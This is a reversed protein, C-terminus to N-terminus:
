RPPCSTSVAWNMLVLALLVLSVIKFIGRSSAHSNTRPLTGAWTRLYSRVAWGRYPSSGSAPPVGGGSGLASSPLTPAPIFTGTRTLRMLTTSEPPGTSSASNESVSSARSFRIASYVWSSSCSYVGSMASGSLSSAGSSSIGSSRRAEMSSPGHAGRQPSSGLSSRPRWAHFIPTCRLWSVERVFRSSCTREPLSVSTRGRTDSWCPRYESSAAHVSTPRSYWATSDQVPVKRFSM